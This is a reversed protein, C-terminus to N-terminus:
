EEFITIKSLNLSNDPKRIFQCFDARNGRFLAMAQAGTGGFMGTTLCKVYRPTSIKGDVLVVAFCLKSFVRLVIVVSRFLHAESGLERRLRTEIILVFIRGLTLKTLEISGRGGGAWYQLLSCLATVLNTQCPM